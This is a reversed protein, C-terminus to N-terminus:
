VKSMMEGDLKKMTVDEYYSDPFLGRLQTMHYISVRLLSQVMGLSEQETINRQVQVQAHQTMPHDTQLISFSLHYNLLSTASISLDRSNEIRM